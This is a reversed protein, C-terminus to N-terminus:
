QIRLVRGLWSDLCVYTALAADVNSLSKLVITVISVTKEIDEQLGILKEKLKKNKQMEDDIQFKLQLIQWLLLFCSNSYKQINSFLNSHPCYWNGKRKWGEWAGNNWPYTTDHRCVKRRYSCSDTWCGKNWCVSREWADEAAKFRGQLSFCNQRKTNFQHILLLAWKPNPIVPYSMVCHQWLINCFSAITVCCLHSM